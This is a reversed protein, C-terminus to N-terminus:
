RSSQTAPAARRRRAASRGARSRRTKRVPQYVVSDWQIDAIGPFHQLAQLLEEARWGQSM